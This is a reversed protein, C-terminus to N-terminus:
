AEIAWTGCSRGALKLRQEPDVLRKHKAAEYRYAELMLDGTLQRIGQTRAIPLTPRKSTPM